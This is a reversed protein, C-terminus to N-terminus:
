RWKRDKGASNACDIIAGSHAGAPALRFSLCLPPALYFAQLRLKALKELVLGLPLLRPDVALRVLPDSGQRSAIALASQLASKSEVM